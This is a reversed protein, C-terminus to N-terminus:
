IDLEKTLTQGRYSEYIKELTPLHLERTVAETTKFTTKGIFLWSTTCTVTRNVLKYDTHRNKKQSEVDHSTYMIDGEHGRHWSDHLDNELASKFMKIIREQTIQERLLNHVLDRESLVAYRVSIDDTLNRHKAAYYSTKDSRDMEVIFENALTEWLKPLSGSIFTSFNPIM